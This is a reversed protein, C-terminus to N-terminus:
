DLSTGLDEYHLFTYHVHIAKRLTEAIAYCDARYWAKTYLLKVTIKLGWCLDNFASYLVIIAKPYLFTTLTGDYPRLCLIM